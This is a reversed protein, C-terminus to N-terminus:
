RSKATRCSNSFARSYITLLRNQRRTAPHASRRRRKRARPHPGYQTTCVFRRFVADAGTYNYQTTRLSIFNVRNTINFAEGILQVGFASASSRSFAPSACM